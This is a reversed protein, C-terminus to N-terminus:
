YLDYDESIDFAIEDLQQNIQREKAHLVRSLHLNEKYTKGNREHSDKVTRKPKEYYEFIQRNEHIFKENEKKFREVDTKDKEIRETLEKIRKNSARMLKDRNLIQKEVMEVKEVLDQTKKLTLYAHTSCVKCEKMCNKYDSKTKAGDTNVQNM